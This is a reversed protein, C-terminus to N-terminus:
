ANQGILLLIQIVHYIQEIPTTLPIDSYKRNYFQHVVNSIMLIM